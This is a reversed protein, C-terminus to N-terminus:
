RLCNDGRRVGLQKLTHAVQNAKENWQAYSLSPTALFRDRDCLVAPAAPDEAVRSEILRQLPVGGAFPADTRNFQAIKALDAPSALGPLPSNM